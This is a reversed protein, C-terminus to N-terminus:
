TSTLWKLVISVASVAMFLFFVLRGYKVYAADSGFKIVFLFFVIFISGKVLQYLNMLMILPHHRKEEIM